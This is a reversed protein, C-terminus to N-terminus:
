SSIGARVLGRPKAATDIGGASWWRLDALGPASESDLRAIESLLLDLAEARQAAATKDNDYGFHLDSLHLLNVMPQYGSNMRNGVVQLISPGSRWLENL